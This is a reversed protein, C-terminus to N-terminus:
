VHHHSQHDHLEELIKHCSDAPQLTRNTHKNTQIVSSIPALHVKPSHHSQPDFPDTQAIFVESKAGLCFIAIKSRQREREGGRKSQFSSSSMSITVLRINASRTSCLTKSRATGRRACFSEFDCPESSVAVFTQYGTGKM